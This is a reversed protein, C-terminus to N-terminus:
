YYKHEFKGTGSIYATFDFVCKIRCYTIVYLEDGDGDDGDFTLLVLLLWLSTRKLTIYDHASLDGTPLCNCMSSVECFDCIRQRIYRIAFVSLSM